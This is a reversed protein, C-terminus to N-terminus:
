NGIPGLNVMVRRPLFCFRYFKKKKNKKKKKIKKKKKRALEFEKELEKKEPARSLFLQQHLPHRNPPSCSSCATEGAPVVKEEKRGGHLTWFFRRSSSRFWSKGRYNEM